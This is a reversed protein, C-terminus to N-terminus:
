EKLHGSQCIPAPNTSTLGQSEKVLKHNRTVVLHDAPLGLLSPATVGGGSAWRMARPRICAVSTAVGNWRGPQTYSSFNIAVAPHGVLVSITHPEDAAITTVM